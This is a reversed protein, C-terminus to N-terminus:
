ISWKHQIGGLRDQSTHKRSSSCIAQACEGVKPPRCANAKRDGQDADLVPTRRLREKFIEGCHAETDSAIPHDIGTEARSQPAESECTCDVETEEEDEHTTTSTVIDSDGTLGSIQENPELGPTPCCVIQLGNSFAQSAAQYSM